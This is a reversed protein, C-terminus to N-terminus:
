ATPPIQEEVEMDHIWRESKTAIAAKPLLSVDSKLTGKSNNASNGGNKKSNDVKKPTPAPTTLVSETLAIKMEQTPEKDPETQTGENKAHPKPM